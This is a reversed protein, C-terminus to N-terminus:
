IVDYAIVNRDFYSNIAEVIKKAPKEVTKRRYFMAWVTMSTVFSITKADFYYVGTFHGKLASRM